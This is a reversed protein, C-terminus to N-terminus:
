RPQPRGGGCAAPSHVRPRSRGGTLLDAGKRAQVPCRRLVSARRHHVGFHLHDGYVKRRGRPGHIARADRSCHPGAMALRRAESCRGRRQGRDARRRAPRLRNSVSSDNEERPPDSAPRPCKMPSRPRENRADHPPLPRLRSMLRIGYTPNASAAVHPRVEVTTSRCAVARNLSPEASIRWRPRKTGPPSTTFARLSGRRIMGLVTAPDVQWREALQPPTYYAPDAM